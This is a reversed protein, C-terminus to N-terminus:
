VCRWLFFVPEVNKLDLCLLTTESGMVIFSPESDGERGKEFRISEFYFDWRGDVYIPSKLLGPEFTSHRFILELSSLLSLNLEIRDDSSEFCKM